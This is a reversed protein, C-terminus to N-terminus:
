TPVTKGRKSVESDTQEGALCNETGAASGSVGLSAVCTAPIKKNPVM